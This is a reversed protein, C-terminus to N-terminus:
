ASNPPQARGAAAPVRWHAACSGPTSGVGPRTWRSVTVTSAVSEQRSRRLASRAAGRPRSRWRPWRTRCSASTGRGSTARWRPWRTGAWSPGAGSVRRRRGGSIRPSNASTRRAAACRRSTLGSSTSGSACTRASTDPRRQPRSRDIRRRSSARTSRALARRVSEDFRARRSPGCCSRRRM